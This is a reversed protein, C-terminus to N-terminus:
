TPVVTLWGGRHDGAIASGHYTGGHPPVQCDAGGGVARFGVPCSATGGYHVEDLSPSNQLATCGGAPNSRVLNGVAVAFNGAMEPCFAQGCNTPPTSSAFSGACDVDGPEYLDAWSALAGTLPDKAFSSATILRSSEIKLATGDCSARIHYSGLKFAGLNSVGIINSNKDKLPFFSSGCTVEALTQTCDIRNRLVRRNGLQDERLQTSKSAKFSNNLMTSLSLALVSGVGLAILVSVLSFGQQNNKM